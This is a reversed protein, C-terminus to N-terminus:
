RSIGSVWIGTLLLGDTCPLNYVGQGHDINVGAYSEAQEWVLHCMFEDEWVFTSFIIWDEHAAAFVCIWFLRSRGLSAVQPTSAALSLTYGTVLPVIGEPGWFVESLYIAGGSWKLFRCLHGLNVSGIKAVKIVWGSQWLVTLVGHVALFQVSGNPLWRWHTRLKRKLISLLINFYKKPFIWNLWM